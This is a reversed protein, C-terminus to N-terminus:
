APWRQKLDWAISSPNARRILGWSTLFKRWAPAGPVGPQLVHPTGEQAFWDIRAVAAALADSDPAFRQLAMVNRLIEAGLREPRSRGPDDAVAARWAYRLFEWVKDAVYAYNEAGLSNSPPSLNDAISDHVHVPAVTPRDLWRFHRHEPAILVGDLSKYSPDLMEIKRGEVDLLSLRSGSGTSIQPPAQVQTGCLAVRGDPAVALDAISRHRPDPLEVPGLDDAQAAALDYSALRPPGEFPQELVMISSASRAPWWATSAPGTGLTTSRGTAVEVLSNGSLLWAGDPSFQLPTWGGGAATTLLRRSGTDIPAISLSRGEMGWYESVAVTRGDPSIDISTVFGGIEALELRGEGLDGVYLNKAHPYLPPRFEGHSGEWGAHSAHRAGLDLADPLGLARHTLSGGIAVSRRSRDAAFCTSDLWAPSVILRQDDVIVTEFARGESERLRVALREVAPLSDQEAGLEPWLTETYVYSAGRLDRPPVDLRAM